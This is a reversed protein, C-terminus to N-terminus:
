IHAGHQRLFERMDVAKLYNPDNSDSDIVVLGLLPEGDNNKANVDAKNSLLLETAGKHGADAAMHLPTCDLKEDKCIALNPNCKLLDRAKGFDGCAVLDLFSM